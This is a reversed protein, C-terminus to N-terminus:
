GFLDDFGGALEVVAEEEKKEEKAPAAAAPASSSSAAAGGGGGGGVAAFQAAGAEILENLNKGQLKALVADVAANDATIGVSELISVIKAKSPNADGGAVALLYASIYKM